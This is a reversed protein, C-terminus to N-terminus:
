FFDRTLIDLIYFFENSKIIEPPLQFNKLNDSAFPSINLSILVGQELSINKPFTEKTFAGIPFLKALFALSGSDVNLLAQFILSTYQAKNNAM